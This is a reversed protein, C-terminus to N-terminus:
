NLSFASPNKRVFETLLDQVKDNDKVYEKELEAMKDKIQQNLSDLQKQRMERNPSPGGPGFLGNAQRVTEQASRAGIAGLSEVADHAHDGARNFYYQEFGGNYVDGELGWVCLFTKESQSLMEYGVQDRRKRVVDGVKFLDVENQGMEGAQQKTPSNPVDRSCSMLCLCFLIWLRTRMSM